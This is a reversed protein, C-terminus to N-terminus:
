SKKMKKQSDRSAIGRGLMAIPDTRGSQQLPPLVRSLPAILDGYYAQRGEPSLGYMHDSQGSASTINVEADVNATKGICIELGNPVFLKLNADSLVRSLASAHGVASGVGVGVQGAMLGIGAAGPLFWGAINAGKQFIRNEPNPIIAVNIADLVRIFEEPSIGYQVFENSYGRLFPQDDGYAIQPLALPRFVGNRSYPMDRINGIDNSQRYYPQGQDWNRGNSAASECRWPQAFQDRNGQYRQMQDPPSRDISQYGRDPYTGFSPLDRGPYQMGYDYSSGRPDSSQTMRGQMGDLTYPNRDDVYVGYGQDPSRSQKWGSLSPNGNDRGNDKNVFPLRPGGGFGNNVQDSGLASGIADRIMGM